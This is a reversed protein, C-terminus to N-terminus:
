NNITEINKGGISSLFEKTKETDFKSDGSEIGIFFGDDTVKEFNSSSFIPHHPRPLGNLALMVVFTFIAAIAVTLGFGVPAYAQYSIFPKGSIVLPYDIANAYWQLSLGGIVAFFSIFAIIYGLPSRRLGMADDMGHIPFPSYCDFKSYGADRTKEAAQLLEGPDGFQALIGFIKTDKGNM